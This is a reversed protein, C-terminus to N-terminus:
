YFYDIRNSLRKTWENRKNSTSIKFIVDFKLTFLDSSTDSNALVHTSHLKCTRDTTLWDDGSPNRGGFSNTSNPKDERLKIRISANRYHKDFWSDGMERLNSWHIADIYSSASLMIVRISFLWLLTKTVSVNAWYPVAPHFNLSIWRSEDWIEVKQLSVCLLWQLRTCPQM